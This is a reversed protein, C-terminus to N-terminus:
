TTELNGKQRQNHNKGKQSEATQKEDAVYSPHCSDRNVNEEPTKKGKASAKGNEHTQRQKDEEDATCFLSPL